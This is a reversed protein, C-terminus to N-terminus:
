YRGTVWGSEPLSEPFDEVADVSKAVSLAPLFNRHMLEQVTSSQTIAQALDHAIRWALTEQFTPPMDNPDAIRAVYRLWIDDANSLLTRGELRYRV